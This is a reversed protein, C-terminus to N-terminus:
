CTLTSGFFFVNVPPPLVSGLSILGMVTSSAYFCTKKHNSKFMVGEPNSSQGRHSCGEGASGKLNFACSLSIDQKERKEVLCMLFLPCVCVRVPLSM